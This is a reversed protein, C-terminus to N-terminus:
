IDIRDGYVKERSVIRGNYKNIELKEIDGTEESRFHIYYFDEDEDCDGITGKLELIPEFLPSLLVTVFGNDSSYSLVNPIEYCDFESLDKFGNRELVETLKKGTDVDFVEGVDDNGLGAGIILYRQQELTVKTTNFTDTVVGNQIIDLQFEGRDNRETCGLLIKDNVRCKDAYILDGIFDSEDQNALISKLM